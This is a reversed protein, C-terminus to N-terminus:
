NFGFSFTEGPVCNYWMKMYNTKDPYVTTNCFFQTYNWAVQIGCSEKGTCQSYHSHEFDNATGFYRQGCDEQEGVYNCCYTINRTFYTAIQPCNM